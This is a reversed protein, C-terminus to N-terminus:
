SRREPVRGVAFVSQGFPPRLFRELWSVSRIVTADYCRLALTDRPVMRLCRMLLFWSILGVSNVYHLREVRLGAATMTAALSRKTYRRYHGIMRDFRSMAGNFAPVYVVVAGGPQVLGALSRLAASDDEIHELVNFMAAGSYGGTQDTPLGLRRANIVPHDAFRDALVAFRQPDYETATYSERGVALEAAYDGIGSGIEIPSDGLYPAALRVLWRRYHRAGRLDELVESQLETESQESM